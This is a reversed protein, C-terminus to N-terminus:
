PLPNPPPAITGTGSELEELAKSIVTGIPPNPGAKVAYGPVSAAVLLDGPQIPGSEASARVPVVGVVTLPAHDPREGEVLQSGVFGPQTSHVGVVTRDYAGSSRVRQGEPGIALVEGPALGAAAPLM